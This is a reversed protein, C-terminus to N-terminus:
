ASTVVVPVYSLGANITKAYGKPQLGGSCTLTRTSLIPDVRSVSFQVESVNGDAKMVELKSKVFEEIVVADEELITGGANVRVDTHYFTLLADYIIRAGRNMVEIFQVLDFDSGPPSQLRGNKIFLGNRGKITETSAIGLADFIPTVREDHVYEPNGTKTKDKMYGVVPPQLIAIPSLISGNGTTRRGPDTHEANVLQRLAAHWAFSRRMSPSDAYGGATPAHGPFPYYRKSVACQATAAAVAGWASVTEGGDWGIDRTEVCLYTWTKSAEAADIDAAISTITANSENSALLGGKFSFPLLLANQVAKRANTVGTPAKSSAVQIDGAAVVEAATFVLNGAYPTLPITTGAMTKTPGFNQGGDLSLSYELVATGIIGGKSFKVVCSVDDLVEQSFTVTLQTTGTVPDTRFEDVAAGSKKFGIFTITAGSNQCLYAAAETGKTRGFMKAFAAPDRTTLPETVDDVTFPSPNSTTASALGVVVYRAGPDPPQVGLAGDGILINVGQM